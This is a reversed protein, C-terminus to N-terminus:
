ELHLSQVSVLLQPDVPEQLSGESQSPLPASHDIQSTQLSPPLTSAILARERMKGIDQFLGNIVAQQSTEAFPIATIREKQAAKGRDSRRSRSAKWM